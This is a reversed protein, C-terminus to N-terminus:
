IFSMRWFEIINSLSTKLFENEDFLPPLNEDIKIILADIKDINVDKIALLDLIELRQKKKSELLDTLDKKIKNAVNAM